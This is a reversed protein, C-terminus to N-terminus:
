IPKRAHPVAWPALDRCSPTVPQQEEVVRELLQQGHLGGAPLQDGLCGNPRDV